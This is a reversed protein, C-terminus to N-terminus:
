QTTIVFVSFLRLARPSLDSLHKHTISSPPPESLLSKAGKLTTLQLVYVSKGESTTLLMGNDSSQKLCVSGRM